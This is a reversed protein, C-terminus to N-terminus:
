DHSNTCGEIAKLSKAVRFLIKEEVDIGCEFNKRITFAEIEIVQFRPLHPSISVDM